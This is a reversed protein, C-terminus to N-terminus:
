ASGADAEPASDAEAAAEAAALSEHVAFSRVLGTLHLVGVVAPSCAALRLTGGRAALIRRLGVLMSLGASDLFTVGSLDLVLQPAGAYVQGHLRERLATVSGLEIGGTVTAVVCHARRATELRAGASWPEIGDDNVRM